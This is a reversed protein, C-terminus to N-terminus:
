VACRHAGLVDLGLQDCRARCYLRSLRKEDRQPRLYNRVPMGVPAIRAIGALRRRDLPLERRVVSPKPNRNQM